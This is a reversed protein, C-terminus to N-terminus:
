SVAPTPTFEDKESLLVEVENAAFVELASACAPASLGHTDTGIFLPGTIGARARDECIAQSIALVHWENFGRDFASGRHGSTGFAVRQAVVSPDPQLDVYAALLKPVDVLLTSPALKGALPSIVAGMCGGKAELCNLSAALKGQKANLILM